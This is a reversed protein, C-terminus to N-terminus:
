AKTEDLGTRFLFYAGAGLAVGVILASIFAAPLPLMWSSLVATLGLVAAASLTGLGVLGLGLALGAKLLGGKAESAKEALEVRALDVEQRLLTALDRMMDSLLEGLGSPGATDTATTEETSANMM